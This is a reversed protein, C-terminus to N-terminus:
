LGKFYDFPELCDLCRYLAKCATSGFQSVTATHASDCRPCRVARSISVATGARHSVLGATAVEASDAPHPPAIGYARLKDRGSQSMWDTTWAPSLVTRVEGAVGAQELVEAVQESMYQMAPCGSYTPTITVVIRGDIEEISRLVGLDEITLVPVEPDPVEAIARYLQDREAATAM